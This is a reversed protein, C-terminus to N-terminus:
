AALALHPFEREIFKVFRANSTIKKLYTLVIKNFFLTAQDSKEYWHTHVSALPIMNVLIGAKRSLTWQAQEAEFGCESQFMRWWGFNHEKGFEFREDDAYAAWVDELAAQEYFRSTATATRWLAATRAPESTWLFGGNYYGFRDTDRKRIMHPSLGLKCGAPPPPPLPGLLCIDADVFLVPGPGAFELLTCKEAMFDCWLTPFQTGPLAEMEKRGLGKYRELAVSFHLKEAPYKLESIAVRTAEDTLIYIEPLEKQFIRLTEFLVKIDRIAGGTALTCLRM